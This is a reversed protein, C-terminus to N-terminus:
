QVSTTFSGLGSDARIIVSKLGPPVLFNVQIVGAVAGPAPGAATLTLVQANPTGAFYGNLLFQGRLDAYPPQNVKGDVAGPLISGLGSVYISMISGAQAPNSPSNVGFDGNFVGLVELADPALGVRVLNSHVGNWTVQVPTSKQGAIEFPVVTDIEGAGAVLVPAAYGGFSVQVGAVQSLVSGVAVIGPVPTSPGLNKGFLRVVQGPAIVFGNDNGPGIGTYSVSDLSVASPAPDVKSVADAGTVYAFGGSDLAVGNIASFFTSFPIQTLNSNLKSLFGVDVWIELPDVTPYYTNTASLSGGVWPTGHSDVAVTVNQFCGGGLYTLALISDASPDLKAVFGVGNDIIELPGLGEAFCSLATSTQVANPSVPQSLGSTVGAVFINGQNDLAVGGISDYGSGGLYSSWTLAGQPTFRALFGDVLGDGFSPQLASGVIPFDSSSTKGAVWVNGGSDIALSQGITGCVGGLLTSYALSSGDAALRTVFADGNSPVGVDVLRSFNCSASLSTQYAGPTLPFAPSSTEGTVVANGSSDVAIASVNEAGGGLFTSYILRSGDPAIKAVFANSQGALQNQFANTTVPFDASTTTGAVYANGISDVALGYAADFNSGGLSTSYVLTSGDASWKQVFATTRTGKRDQLPNMVPFDLASTYGAVYINGTPDIAISEGFGQKNGGVNNQFVVEPDITLGAGPKHAGLHFGVSGDKSLRYSVDVFHKEGNVIQWAHPKPQRIEGDAANLILDGHEDISIGTIGQFGITIAGADHGALVEFDYEFYENNGRVILDIGPYINVAKVQSYLRYTKAPNAGNFYHVSGSRQEMGTLTWDGTGGLMQLTVASRQLELVARSREVLVSYNSGHGVFSDGRQEFGLWHGGPSIPAAWSAAPLLM